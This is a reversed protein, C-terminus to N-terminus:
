SGDFRNSWFWFMRGARAMPQARSDGTVPDFRRRQPPAAEAYGPTDDGRGKARGPAVRAVRM